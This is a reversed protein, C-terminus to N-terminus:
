EIRRYGLHTNGNVAPFYLLLNNYNNSFEYICFLALQRSGDENIQGFNLYIDSGYYATDFWYNGTSIVGTNYTLIKYINGKLYEFYDYSNEEPTMNPYIGSEALEWKGLIAIAPDIIYVTDVIYTTDTIYITDIQIISPNEICTKETCSAGLIVIFLIVLSLNFAKIKM